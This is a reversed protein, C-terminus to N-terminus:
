VQCANTSVSSSRVQLLPPRFDRQLLHLFSYRERHHAHDQMAIRSCSPPADVSARWGNCRARMVEDTKMAKGERKAHMNLLM